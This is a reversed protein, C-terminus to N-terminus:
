SRAWFSSIWAMRWFLVAFPWWNALLPVLRTSFPQNPARGLQNLTSNSEPVSAIEPSSNLWARAATTCAWAANFATSAASVEAWAAIPFLIGNRWCGATWVATLRMFSAHSLKCTCLDMSRYRPLNGLTINLDPLANCLPEKIATTGSSLKHTYIGIEFFRLQTFHANVIPQFHHGVKIATFYNIVTFHHAQRCSRCHTKVIAPVFAVTIRNFHYLTNWNTDTEIRQARVLGNPVSPATLSPLLQYKSDPVPFPIAEVASFPVTSGSVSLTSQATASAKISFINRSINLIVNWVAKSYFPRRFKIPFLRDIYPKCRCCVM